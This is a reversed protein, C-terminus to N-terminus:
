DSWLCYTFTEMKESLLNELLFVYLTVYKMVFNGFM